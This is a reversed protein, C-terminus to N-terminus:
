WSRNDDRYVANSESYDDEDVARPRTPEPTSPAEEAPVPIRQVVGSDGGLPVFATAVSQAATQRAQRTLALIEAALEDASKTMAADTLRLDTLAGSPAVSVTVAGDESQETTASSDVAQKFDTAKRQLDAVKTEFDALWEDPTQM